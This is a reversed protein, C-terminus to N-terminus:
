REAIIANRRTNNQLYPQKMEENDQEEYAELCKYKSDLITKLKQLQLKGEGFEEELQETTSKYDKTMNNLIHIILEDESIMVQHKQLKYRSKLHGSGNM